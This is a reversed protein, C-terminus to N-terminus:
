VQAHPTFCDGDNRPDYTEVDQLQFCTHHCSYRAAVRQASKLVATSDAGTAVTLHAWMNRKDGSLAWVHLDHVELVSPIDQLQRTLVTTDVGHPVGAMLVHMAEQVTGLSTWLVLGSFFLTCM